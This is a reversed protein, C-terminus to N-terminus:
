ASVESLEVRESSGLNRDLFNGLGVKFDVSTLVLSVFALKDRTHEVYASDNTERTLGLSVGDFPRTQRM